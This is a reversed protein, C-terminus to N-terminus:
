LLVQSALSHNSAHHESPISHDITDFAASLDIPCLCSVQQQNSAPIIQDHAALVATETSHLKFYASRFSYLLSHQASFDTLRSKIVRETLKSLFNLHSIPRYNTLADGM